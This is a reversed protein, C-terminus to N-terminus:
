PTLTLQDYLHLKNVKWIEDELFFLLVKWIEFIFFPELVWLNWQRTFLIQDHIIEYLFNIWIIALTIYIYKVHVPGM